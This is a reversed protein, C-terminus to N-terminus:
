NVLFCNSTNVPLNSSVLIINSMFLYINVNIYM